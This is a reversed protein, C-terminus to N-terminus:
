DAGISFINSIGMLPSLIRSGPRISKNEIWNGIFIISGNEFVNIQAEKLQTFFSLMMYVDSFRARILLTATNITIVSYLSQIRLFKHKFRLGAM